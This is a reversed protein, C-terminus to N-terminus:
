YFISTEGVSKKVEKEKERSGLAGAIQELVQQNAGAQEEIIEAAIDLQVGVLKEVDGEDEPALFSVAYRRLEGRKLAEGPVLVGSVKEDGYVILFWVPMCACMDRIDERNRTIIVTDIRGDSVLWFQYGDGIEGTTAIKELVPVAESDAKIASCFSAHAMCKGYMVVDRPDLFVVPRNKIKM